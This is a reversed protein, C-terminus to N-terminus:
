NSPTLKKIRAQAEKAKVKAVELKAKLVANEAKLVEAEAKFRHERLTLNKADIPRGTKKAPSTAM